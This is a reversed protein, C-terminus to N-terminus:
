DVRAIFSRLEGHLDGSGLVTHGDHSVSNISINSWDPLAVGSRRFWDTVDEAGTSTWRVSMRRNGSSSTCLVDGFIVGNGDAVNANPKRCGEPVSLTVPRLNGDWVQSSVENKGTVMSDRTRLIVVSGDRNTTLVVSAKEEFGAPLTATNIVAGNVMRALISEGSDARYMTMWASGDGTVAFIGTGHLQRGPSVTKYGDSESWSRAAEPKRNAFQQHSSFYVTKGDPTIGLLADIREDRYQSFPPLIKAGKRATWVFLRDPMMDESDKMRGAVVTGDASVVEVSVPADRTVDTIKEFGRSRSWIQPTSIGSADMQGIVVEGNASLGLPIFGNDPLVTVDPEQAKAMPFICIGSLAFLACLKVLTVKM